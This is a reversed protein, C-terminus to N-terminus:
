TRTHNFLACPGSTKRRWYHKQSKISLSVIVFHKLINRYCVTCFILISIYSKSYRMNILLTVFLFPQIWKNIIVIATVHLLYITVYWSDVSFVFSYSLRHLFQIKCIFRICWCCPMYLYICYVDDCMRKGNGWPRFLFLVCIYLKSFVWVQPLFYKNRYSSIIDNLSFMQYIDCVM